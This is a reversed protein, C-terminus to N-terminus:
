RQAKKGKKKKESKEEVKALSSVFNKLIKINVGESIELEVQDDKEIVDRVVGVIGGNTIVKNGIKLNNVLEQHAKIKKGQPRIMLFYFVGFILILPVFSSLSMEQSASAAGAAQAFSDSIFIESIM